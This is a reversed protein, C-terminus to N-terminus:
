AKGSESFGMHQAPRLPRMWVVNLWDSRRKQQDRLFSRCQGLMKRSMEHRDASDAYTYAPRAELEDALLHFRRLKALLREDACHPLRSNGSPNSESAM